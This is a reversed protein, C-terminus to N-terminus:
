EEIELEELVVGDCLGANGIGCMDLVFPCFVKVKLKKLNPFMKHVNYDGSLTKLILEEVTDSHYCQEFYDISLAKLNTVKNLCIHLPGATEMEVIAPKSMPMADRLDHQDMLIDLFIVKLNPNFNFIIDTSFLPLYNYSDTNEGYRSSFGWKRAEYICEIWNMKPGFYLEEIQDFGAIKVAKQCMEEANITKNKVGDELAYKKYLKASFELLNADITLRLACKCM